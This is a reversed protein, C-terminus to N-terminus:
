STSHDEPKEVNLAIREDHGWTASSATVLLTKGADDARTELLGDVISHGASAKWVIDSVKPTVNFLVSEGAVVTRSGELKFPTVEVVASQSIYSVHKLQARVVVLVSSDRDRYTGVSLSPATYVGSDASMDGESATWVVEYRPDVAFVTKEGFHLKVSEPCVRYESASLSWATPLLKRAFIELQKTTVRGFYGLIFAFALQVEINLNKVDIVLGGASPAVVAATAEASAAPTAATTTVTSVATETTTTGRKDKAVVTTTTTQSALPQLAQQDQESLVFTLNSLLWIVVVAVIPGTILTSVNWWTFCSFRHERTKWFALNRLLYVVTGLLAALFWDVYRVFPTFETGRLRKVFDPWLGFGFHWMAMAALVLALVLLGVWFLLAGRDLDKDHAADNWADKCKTCGSDAM